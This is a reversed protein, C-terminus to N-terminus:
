FQAVWPKAPLASVVGTYVSVFQKDRYTNIDEQKQQLMEHFLASTAKFKNKYGTENALDLLYETQFDVADHDDKVLALKQKWYEMDQVIERGPIKLLGTTYKCAWLAQVDFMPLAFLQHQTGLYLVRENGGNMWVIGKYLHDPYYSGQEGKLRLNDPLFPFQKQYGTCFIIVDVEATSGDIFNAKHADINKVLPREEIGSPWRYGMPNTKWSCIVQTAGYKLTLQALDQASYSSGLILIKKEKFDSAERFDRSHLIRGKFKEVGPIIPFYPVSYIGAAVIIHSFGAEVYIHDEPLNCVTVSFEKKNENYEVRRVVTSYKVFQQLDLNGATNM